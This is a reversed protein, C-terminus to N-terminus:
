TRNLYKTRFNRVSSSVFHTLNNMELGTLTAILNAGLNTNVFFYLVRYHRVRNFLNIPKIFFKRRRFLIM